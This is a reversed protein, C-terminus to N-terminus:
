ADALVAKFGMSLLWFNVAYRCNASLAKLQSSVVGGLKMQWYVSTTKELSRDQLSGAMRYRHSNCNPVSSHSWLYSHHRCQHFPSRSKRSRQSRSSRNSSSGPQYNRNSALHRIQSFCVAAMHGCASSHLLDTVAFKTRQKANPQKHFHESEKTNRRLWVEENKGPCKTERSGVGTPRLPSLAWMLLETQFSDLAM